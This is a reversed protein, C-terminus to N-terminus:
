ASRTCSGTTRRHATRAEGSELVATRMADVDERSPRSLATMAQASAHPDIIPKDTFSQLYDKTLIM